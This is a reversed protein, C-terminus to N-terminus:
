VSDLYALAGRRLVDARDSPTPIWKIWKLAKLRAKFPTTTYDHRMYCSDRSQVWPDYPGNSSCKPVTHFRQCLVVANCVTVHGSLRLYSQGSPNVIVSDRHESTIPRDM